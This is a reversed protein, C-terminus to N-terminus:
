CGIGATENINGILLQLLVAVALVAVAVLMVHEGVVM